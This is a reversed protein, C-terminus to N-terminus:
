GTSPVVTKAIRGPVARFPMPKLPNAGSSAAHNKEQVPKITWVTLLHMHGSRSCILDMARCFLWFFLVLICFDVVDRPDCFRDIEQASKAATNGGKNATIDMVAAM